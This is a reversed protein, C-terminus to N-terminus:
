TEPIEKKEKQFEESTSQEKKVAEEMAAAEAGELPKLSVNIEDPDVDYVAGTAFDIIIGIIGGILVNGLHWWNFGKKTVRSEELYGDKKIKIQHRKKRKLDTTLPTKGTSMGDIEVDAGAPNSRISVTQERGSVISACGTQVLLLIFVLYASLLKQM